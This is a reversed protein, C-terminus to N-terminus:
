GPSGAFRGRPMPAPVTVASGAPRTARREPTRWARIEGALADAAATARRLKGHVDDAGGATQSNYYQRGPMRGIRGECGRPWLGNM